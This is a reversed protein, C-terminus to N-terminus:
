YKEYKKSLFANSCGKVSGFINFFLFGLIERLENVGFISIVRRLNYCLFILAFEAAIKKKTKLLTYYYGPPLWCHFFLTFSMKRFCLAASSVPLVMM